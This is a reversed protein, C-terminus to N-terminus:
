DIRQTEIRDFGGCPDVLSGNLRLVVVRIRGVNVPVFPTAYPAQTLRM